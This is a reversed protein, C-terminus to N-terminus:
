TNNLIGLLYHLLGVTVVQPTLTPHSKGTHCRTVNRFPSTLDYIDGRPSVSMLGTNAKFM